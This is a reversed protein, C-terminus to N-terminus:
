VRRVNRFRIAVATLVATATGKAEKCAAPALAAIRKPKIPQPPSPINQEAMEGPNLSYSNNAHAAGLLPT